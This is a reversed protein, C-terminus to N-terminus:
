KRRQKKRTPIKNIDQENREAIVGEEEEKENIENSASYVSELISDSFHLSEDSKEELFEEDNKNINIDHDNNNESRKNEVLIEEIYEFLEQRDEHNEIKLIDNKLENVRKLLHDKQFKSNGINISHHNSGKDLTTVTHIQENYTYAGSKCNM